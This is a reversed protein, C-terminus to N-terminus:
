CINLINNIGKKNTTFEGIFETFTNDIIGSESGKIKAMFYSGECFHIEWIKM